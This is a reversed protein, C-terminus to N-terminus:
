FAKVVLTRQNARANYRKKQGKRLALTSRKDRATSIMGSVVVM